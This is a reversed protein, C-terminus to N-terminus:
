LLQSSGPASQTGKQHTSPTKGVAIPWFLSVALFPSLNAPPPAICRLGCDHSQDFMADPFNLIERYHKDHNTAQHQKTGSRFFARLTAHTLTPYIRPKLTM